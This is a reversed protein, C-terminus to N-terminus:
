LTDSPTTNQQLTNQPTASHQMFSKLCRVVLSFRKLFTKCCNDSLIVSVVVIIGRFCEQLVKALISVTYIATECCDQVSKFFLFRTLLLKYQCGVVIQCRICCDQLLRAVIKCCDQLVRAVNKCCEAVIHFGLKVLCVLLLYFRLSKLNILKKITCYLKQRADLFLGQRDFTTFSIM